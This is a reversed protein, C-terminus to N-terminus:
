QLVEVKKIVNEIQKKQRRLKAVNLRAIIVSDNRLEDINADLERIEALLCCKILAKEGITLREDM